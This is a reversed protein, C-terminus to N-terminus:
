APKAMQLKIRVLPQRMKLDALEPESGLFPDREEGGSRQIHRLAPLDFLRSPDFLHGALGNGAACGIWASGNDAASTGSINARVAAVLGPGKRGRVISNPLYKPMRDAITAEGRHCALSQSQAAKGLDACNASM